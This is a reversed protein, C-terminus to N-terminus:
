KPTVTMVGKMGRAYHDPFTCVYEYAGPKTPATFTITDSELPGLLKTKALIHPALDSSIYDSEPHDAGAQILKGADTGNELLVWNHSMAEKPLEGVNTLTLAVTQGAKVEFNTVNFKLDDNGSMSILKTRVSQSCATFGVAIVFCAILTKMKADILSQGTMQFPQM